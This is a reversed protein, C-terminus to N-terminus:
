DQTQPAARSGDLLVATLDQLDRAVPLAECAALAAEVRTAPWGAERMLTRAKGQVDAESMARAPDGFTDRLEAQSSSGDRWQVVVRAGYHQPYAAQIAADVHLHVRQRLAAVSPDRLCAGEYHALQPEGHTAWAALAHAISFRAQAPDQPDSRDCFRLADEYGHVDIRLVADPCLSRGRTAERWADMAPHAHRCAPWPKFSVDALWPERPQWGHSGDASEDATRALSGPATAALWGSPGEVIGLPGSMGCSALQAATVGERAAGAMHWSKGWSAEHRVQWLGGARTGALAMAQAVEEHGLGMAVAAGAAAGFCGSTGTTHWWRYHSPGLCRGIRIMAEYGAIVASLLSAGSASQPLAALVAPIVVPGPHLVSSRHVDDMELTSGLAGHYAAAACPDSRTSALTPVRGTGQLSLWRGMAHGLPSQAGQAACGLWDLVHLAARAHWHQAHSAAHCAAAAVRQLTTATAALSPM